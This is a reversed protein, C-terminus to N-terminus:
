SFLNMVELYKRTDRKKVKATIVSLLLDIRKFKEPCLATTNVILM